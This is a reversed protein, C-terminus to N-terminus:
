GTTRRPRPGAGAHGVEVGEVVRRVQDQEPDPVGAEDVLEGGRRLDTGAARHDEAARVRVADSVLEPPHRGLGAHGQHTGPAHPEPVYAAADAGHAVGLAVVEGDPRDRQDGCEPETKEVISRV